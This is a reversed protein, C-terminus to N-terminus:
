ILGSAQKEAKQAATLAQEGLYRGLQQYADFQDSNFWQDATGDRPFGADDQSYELVHFPLDTTLAAQAFILTGQLEDGPYTITGVIVATESIRANLSALPNGPFPPPTMGGPVLDYPQQGFDIRVGLEERALAIAGALTDALPTGGGSADFCYIRRCRLRLLEILGLNDYHGGDTCLLMRASSPHIGFIERALHSLRRRRPLGPVTWDDWHKHKLAVFYPNPLWAGLRVNTLALFVEFFRTQRGMAAAFASGSVAMAAEVQLDQGISPSVLQELFETRVWGTQPGGVYESGFVYPVARRGPPTRDQGAINAAAAFRVEPFSTTKLAWTSLPTPKKLPKVTTVGQTRSRTTAFASALRRRYFPYLSLWTEDFVVAAALLVGAPLLGWLTSALGSVAALSSVLVAGLVLVALCLWLLLMQAMSNPLVQGGPSKTFFATVSSGTKTITTRKRWLTSALAGIYGIVVTLGGATLVPRPSYGVHWSLWSGLWMMAPIAVGLTALLGTLGLLYKGATAAKGAVMSRRRGATATFAIQVLYALVALVLVTLLALTVGWPIAPWGPAPPIVPKGNRVPIHLLFVPKLKALGSAKGTIIPIEGYFRGIVVGATAVALGVLIIGTVVCRLLVGLASLWQGLTDALYSSHRRLHDEEPSGPALVNKADAADRSVELPRLALQYAGATYGGGSVSVLYEAQALEPTGSSDVSSKPARLSQLAGLAVTASRIGGGSVCVGVEERAPAGPLAPFQQGEGALVAVPAVVEYLYDLGQGLGSAQRVCSV